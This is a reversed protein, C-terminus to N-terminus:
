VVTVTTTGALVVQKVTATLDSTGSNITVATVNTVGPSADYAVQSLRTLHLTQGLSLSAIYANVAAVVLTQVASGVFGAAVSINMATNATEVVPAFVAFATAIPRVADVANSVTALFDSSPTGTGDNAVVYFYDNRAAGSYDFNEVVECTVDQAVGLVASKVALLTGTALTNIYLVFRAKYAPDKEADAGNTFTSANTVTDVFPIASSLTNILGASANSAAGATVAQVTATGSGTGIAILYANLALNYATQNTDPIVRYQQTGDQTQIISGGSWITRGYADLGSATAASISAQQTTTFRAFTVQGTSPQSPLRPFDFDAAWSDADPGFSTSFRTLAATNLILGQLWLTILAFADVFARLVSGVTLDLLKAANGQIAAVTNSVLQSFTQTSPAPM